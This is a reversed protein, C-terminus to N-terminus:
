GAAGVILIALMWYLGAVVPPLVVPLDILTDIVPGMPISRRALLYALPTGTAVIVIMASSCTLASIRLAELVIPSILLSPDSLTQIGRVALGILPVVIFCVLLFAPIRVAGAKM